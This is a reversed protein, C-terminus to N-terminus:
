LSSKLLAAKEKFEKSNWLADIGHRVVDTASFNGVNRLLNYKSLIKTDAEADFTATIYKKNASGGEEVVEMDEQPM